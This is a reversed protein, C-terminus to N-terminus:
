YASRVMAERGRGVSGRAYNRIGLSCRQVGDGRPQWYICEDAAAARQQQMGTAGLAYWEYALRTPRSLALRAKKDM